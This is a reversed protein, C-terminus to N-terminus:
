KGNQHKKNEKILENLRNLITHVNTQLIKDEHYFQDGLLNRHVSVWSFHVPEVKKEEPEEEEEEQDDNEDLTDRYPFVETYKEELCASRMARYNIVIALLLADDIENFLPLRHNTGYISFPIRRDTEGTYDPRIPRYLASALNKYLKNIMFQDAYIFEEWTLNGFNGQYSYLETDNLIISDIKQERFSLEKSEDLLWNFMEIISYRQYRDLFNVASEPISALITFFSEPIMLSTKRAIIYRCAEIFQKGNMEAFSNPCNVDNKKGAIEITIISM